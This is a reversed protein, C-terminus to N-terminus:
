KTSKIKELIVSYAPSSPLLEEYIDKDKNHYYVTVGTVSSPDKVYYYDIDGVSIKIADVDETKYEQCPDSEMMDYAFLKEPPQGKIINTFLSKNDPACLRCIKEPFHEKLLNCEISTEDVAQQFPLIMDNNKSMRGFMIEDTSQSLGKVLQEATLGVKTKAQSAIYSATDFSDPYVALLIYPQVNRELPDLRMHSAYRVVRTFLQQRITDIFQPEMMIIYRGCKLDLGQSESSAIMLFPLKEGHDNSPDNYIAVIKDKISQEVSGNMVAFTKTGLNTPKGNKDFQLESYGCCKYKVTLASEDMLRPMEIDRETGVLFKTLAGTGGIGTFFSFIIGKQNKHKRIIQDIVVFKPSVSDQESVKDMIADIRATKENNSIDSNYIVEVEPPPAYNSCQRTRVMYTSAKKSEKGFKYTVVASKEVKRNVEEKIEKERRVMFLGIQRGVLPIRLVKTPLQEPFMSEGKKDRKVIKGNQSTLQLAEPDIRSVLGAIRNQFKNKNKMTKSESDWFAEMFQKRTEPFIRSGDLLNFMPALEFPRSNILTGTLFLLRIDPSNMLLDYLEVMATSGNSISQMVLHVEDIIVLCKGLKRINRSLATADLNFSDDNEGKSINKVIAHSRRVFSILERSIENGTIEKYEKIGKEINEELSAPAIYVVKTHGATIAADILSIALVTKGSGMHHNALMGKSLTRSFVLNFWQQYYFLQAYEGKDLQYSSLLNKLEVFVNTSNRTLSM